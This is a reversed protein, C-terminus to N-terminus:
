VPEFIAPDGTDKSVSVLLGDIRHSLLVIGHIVNSFFSNALERFVVAVQVGLHLEM